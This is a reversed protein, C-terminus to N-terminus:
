LDAEWNPDCFGCLRAPRLLQTHCKQCRMAVMGKKHSRTALIEARCTECQKQRWHHLEVGCVECHHPQLSRGRGHLRHHVTATTLGVREAIQRFSLGEERLDLLVHTEVSM